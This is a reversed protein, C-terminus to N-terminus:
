PSGESQRSQYELLAAQRLNQILTDVIKYGQEELDKIMSTIKGETGWWSECGYVIQGNDLVLKPNTYGEPAMSSVPFGLHFVDDTPREEGGYIGFGFFHVEKKDHDISYIAGVRDGERWNRYRKTESM